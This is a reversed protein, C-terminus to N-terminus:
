QAPYVPIYYRMVEQPAKGYIEQLETGWVQKLAWEIDTAYQHQGPNRPNWRMEYLTNQGNESKDIYSGAICEAGGMIAAEPSFWSNEYAMEAGEELATGDPASYGYMNYVIKGNYSYGVALDSTGHGTELITHVILYVPNVNYERAADLFVEEKGELIGKGELMERAMDSTLYDYYSLELFQYKESGTMHNCPLMALYIEEDSALLWVGNRSIKAESSGELAAQINVAEEYSKECVYYITTSGDANVVELSEEEQHFLNYFQIYSQYDAASNIIPYGDVTTRLGAFRAAQYAIFSDDTVNENQRESDMDHLKSISAMGEVTWLQLTSGNINSDYAETKLLNQVESVINRVSCLRERVDEMGKVMERSVYESDDALELMNRSVRNGFELFNSKRIGTRANECASILAECRAEVPVSEALDAIRCFVGDAEWMCADVEAMVSRIREAAGIVENTDMYFNQNLGSRVGM